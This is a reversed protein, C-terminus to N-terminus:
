RRYTAYLHRTIVRGQKLASQPQVAELVMGAKEAVRMSRQNGDHIPACVRSVEAAEFARAVCARAALTALGLGWHVPSLWWGVEVNCRMFGSQQAGGCGGQPEDHLCIAWNDGTEAHGGTTWWEADGRTYPMPWSDSMWRAIAEDNALVALAQADEPRWRRL